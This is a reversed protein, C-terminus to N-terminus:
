WQFRNREDLEKHLDRWIPDEHRVPTAPPGMMYSPHAIAVYVAFVLSMVRDDNTGGEGRLRVTLGQPTVEQGFARLEELTAADPIYIQREKIVRQLCAVMHAKTKINTDVGYVPDLNFDAASPDSQDRFLMPYALEKLRVLTGIGLGTREVVLYASNYFYGLLAVKVAYDLPNIWGHLQGVMRLDPVQVVSACSFDGKYKKSRDVLGSAVDCGILYQVGESPPEWVALEGDRSEQFKGDNDLDGVFRPPTIADEMEHLAYRDFVSHKALPAPRGWIRAESELPDQDLRRADIQEKPVLGAAYQDISHLSIYPTDTGPIKNERPGKMYISTLRRHEWSSKGLLPTGTVMLSSYPVTQLRQVAEDFFEEAIHEDFHGLAFQAGQLVDPGAEDSYLTITSRQHRCREAKGVLACEHCAIYIIHKREDYRNFWKGGPPFLPSLDNGPEGTLFKREFVNPGYQSFNVGILFTSAPPRIFRRWRHRGTAVMCHEIYATQSKSTRNASRNYRVFASSVHFALAVAHAPKYLLFPDAKFVRDFDDHLKQMGLAFPELWELNRDRKRKTWSALEDAVLEVCKTFNDLDIKQPVRKRKKRTADLLDGMKTLVQDYGWPVVAM